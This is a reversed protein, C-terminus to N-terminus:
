RMAPSSVKRRLIQKGVESARSFTTSPRVGYTAVVVMSTNEEGSVRRVISKGALAGRACGRRWFLVFAIRIKSWLSLFQVVPGEGATQM